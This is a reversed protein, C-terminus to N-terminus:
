RAGHCAVEQDCEDFRPSQPKLTKKLVCFLGETGLYSHKIREVNWDGERVFQSQFVEQRRIFRGRDLKCLMWAVPRRWASTPLIPDFIIVRGHENTVRVMESVTQRALDEPLHHLLAVSMVADFSNSAFPLESASGALGIGGKMRFKKIYSESIDLGIPHIGIKWLWSSPGCGVDLINRESHPTGGFIRSLHGTIIRDMGPAFIKQATRYVIPYELIKHLNM